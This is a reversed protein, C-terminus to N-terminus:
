SGQGVNGGWVTACRLLSGNSSSIRPSVRPIRLLVLIIQRIEVIDRVIKLKQVVSEERVAFWQGVENVIIERLM